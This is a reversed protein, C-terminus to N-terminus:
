KIVIEGQRLVKPEDILSLITSSVKSFKVQDIVLYDIYESFEKEIEDISSLEKEGSINVSTVEMPGFHNLIDLAVKSNPMRIAITDHIYNKDKAKLILTLAGPWYSTYSKDKDNLYALKFCDNINGILIPINKKHERKKMDYIKERAENDLYLCGVGYVTDTPFVIIKGKLEKIDKKLLEEKTVKEM